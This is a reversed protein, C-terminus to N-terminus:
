AVNLRIVPGIEQPIEAAFVLAPEGVYVRETRRRALRVLDSAVGMQVSDFYRPFPLIADDAHNKTARFRFVEHVLNMRRAADAQFFGAVTAALLEFDLAGVRGGDDAEVGAGAVM